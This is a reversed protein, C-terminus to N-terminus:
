RPQATSGVATGHAMRSPAATARGAGPPAPASRGSATRAKEASTGFARIGALCLDAAGAGPSPSPRSRGETGARLFPVEPLAAGGPRHLQPVPRVSRLDRLDEGRGRLQEGYLACRWCCSSWRSQGLSRRRTLGFPFFYGTVSTLITFLLFIETWGKVKESRFMGGLVVFGTAIGILSILTHIISLADTAMGRDYGPGGPPPPFVARPRSM